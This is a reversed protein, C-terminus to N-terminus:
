PKEELDVLIRGGESRAPYTQLPQPMKFMKALALKAGTWDTWMLVRGDALDFRSHHRPCSVVTGELKGQWLRGGLHPCRGQAAYYTEGVRALVLERGDANVSKMAGGAVDDSAGVDVWRSM